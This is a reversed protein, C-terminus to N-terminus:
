LFSDNRISHLTQQYERQVKREILGIRFCVLGEWIFFYPIFSHISFSPFTYGPIIFFALLMGLFIGSISLWWLRHYHKVENAMIVVVVAELVFLGALTLYIFEPEPTEAMLLILGACLYVAAPFLDTVQPGWVDAKAMGRILGLLSSLLALIGLGRIYLEGWSGTYCLAILAFVINIIAKAFCYLYNSSLINRM